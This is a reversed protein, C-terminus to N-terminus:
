LSVTANVTDIDVNMAALTARVAEEIETVTVSPLTVHDANITAAVHIAVDLHVAM